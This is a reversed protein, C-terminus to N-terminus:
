ADDHEVEEAGELVRDAVRGADIDALYVLAAHEYLQELPVDQRAAEAKM